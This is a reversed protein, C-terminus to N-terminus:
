IIVKFPYIYVTNKELNGMMDRTFIENKANDLVEVIAEPVNLDIGRPITYGVGNIGVFVPLHGTVDKKDIPINITYFKGAAILQKVKDPNYIGGTITPIEKGFLSPAAAVAMIAGISKLFDRRKM